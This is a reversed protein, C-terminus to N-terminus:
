YPFHLSERFQLLCFQELCLSFVGFLMKLSSGVFAIDATSDVATRVVCCGEPVAEYLRGASCLRGHVVAAGREGACQEVGWGAGGTGGTVLCAVYEQVVVSLLKNNCTPIV